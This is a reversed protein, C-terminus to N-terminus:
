VPGEGRIDDIGVAKQDKRGARIGGVSEGGVHIGRQRGEVGVVM